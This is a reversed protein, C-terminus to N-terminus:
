WGEARLIADKIGDRTWNAHDEDQDIDSPGPSSCNQMVHFLEHVLATARWGRAMDTPQGIEVLRSMCYTVGSVSVVFNKGAEMEWTVQPRVKVVYGRMASCNEAADQLRNDTTQTAKYIAQSVAELLSSSTLWSKDELRLGCNDQTRPIHACCSILLAVLYKM